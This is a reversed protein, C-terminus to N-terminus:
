SAALAEAEELLVTFRGFATRWTDPARLDIGFPEVLEAPSASGGAALLELYLPVFSEPDDRYRGHLLLALLHAFSYAYTYFRVHIFHPIYSWGLRYRDPLTVADGYYAANEDIWIESLREPTLTRGEARLAYARQEFRALVVQRFIAAMAQELRDVVLALRTQPDSEHELLYDDAVLQAFTSPVEAFALGGHHSRFTQRELALAGHTAHGFEHALTVVDRFRGTYNLLVLPLIEKSVTTCYAGSAKGARPAADVHGADLCARFIEALRPSFSAFSADVIEVAEEWPFGRGEGVPAYQDALGLRDLGLLRAKTEFWRRGLGYSECSAAIMADVTEADLENQMNTPQMPDAFGRVRDLGLRDGVLADYCAALVDARPALGDYLATLAGLRIEREPRYLYSLLLNVSQPQVGEGADFPVELTAIQRDHLSSWSAVAPTRANLAQEEPETLVHPKEDRLTRLKHAYGALEPSALLAQAPEDDLAIWELDVFLLENEIDAGRERAFTALDNAEVDAADMNARSSGYVTVRSLDQLLEDCEDLLARLGAADLEAVTGRYRGAFDTARVVLGAWEARAADANASLEALNWRVGEASTMVGSM